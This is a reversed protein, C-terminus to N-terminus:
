IFNKTFCKIVKEKMEDANQAAREKEQRLADVAASMDHEFNNIM